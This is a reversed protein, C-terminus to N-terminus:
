ATDTIKTNGDLSLWKAEDDVINHAGASRHRDGVSTAQAGEVQDLVADATVWVFAPSIPDNAM